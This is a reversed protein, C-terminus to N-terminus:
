GKLRLVYAVTVGGTGVSRTRKDPFSIALERGQHIVKDATTIPLAFGAAELDEISVVALFFYQMVDGILAHPSGPDARVKAHATTDTFTRNPGAPGTFRRIAITDELHVKYRSRAFEPTV